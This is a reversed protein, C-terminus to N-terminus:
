KQTSSKNKNEEPNWGLINVVDNCYINAHDAKKCINEPVKGHKQCEFSVEGLNNNKPKQVDCQTGSKIPWGFRYFSELMLLERDSDNILNWSKGHPAGNVFCLKRKDVAVSKPPPAARQCKTCGREDKCKRIFMWKDDIPFLEPSSLIRTVCKDRLLRGDRCIFNRLPLCFTPASCFKRFTNMNTITDILIQVQRSQSLVIFKEYDIEIPLCRAFGCFYEILLRHHFEKAPPLYICSLHNPLSIDKVHDDIAKSIFNKISKITQIIVKPSYNMTKTDFNMWLFHRKPKSVSGRESKTFFSSFGKQILPQISLPVGIISLPVGGAENNLCNM